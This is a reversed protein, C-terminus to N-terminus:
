PAFLVAAHGGTVSLMNYRTLWIYVMYKPTTPSVRRLPVISVRSDHTETVTDSWVNTIMQSVYSGGGGAVAGSGGGYYGDGGRQGVSSGGTQQNSLVFADTVPMTQGDPLGVGAAAGRGGGGGGVQPGNVQLECVAFGSVDVASEYTRWPAQADHYVQVTQGATVSIPTALTVTYWQLPDGPDPTIWTGPIAPGGDIQIFNAIGGTWVRTQVRWGYLMGNTTMTFVPGTHSSATATSAPVNTYLTPTPVIATHTRATNGGNWGIQVADGADGGDTGYGGGAAVAIWSYGVNTQLVLSASGHATTRVYVHQFGRMRRLTQYDVIGEVFAGRGGPSAGELRIRFGDVDHGFLSDLTVLQDAGVEIVDVGSVDAWVPPMCEDMNFQLYLERNQLLSWNAAGRIEDAPRELAEALGGTPWFGFDYRYIYRDVLPTRRSGLAPILSRFFSPGEHEFRREGEWWLTAAALPDSRRDSFGPRIYGNGYDWDPIQADPWWIGSADTYGLDRSFLFYANYTPAEARQIIWSIDRILGGPRLPIRLSSTGETPVAPIAVHQEFPIQLSAMRFASAERDELSIYELIWYAEQIRWTTPMAGVVRGSSIDVLPCGALAPLPGTSGTPAPFTASAPTSTFVCDQVPRFQVTIQVKDRAMAQIPLVQPGPGRNWWFPFVVELTQSTAGTNVSSQDTYTSPDRGIMANTSDFHEVPQTQEDLVELLRSDLTDIVQGNVTFDVSSCIAHGLANTWSWSPAVSQGGNAAQATQQPTVIDPLTVVLTARSILEGRQPLTVTARRGFDAIGDFEVRYWRSAWRTRRRLVKAFASVSPQGRVENLRERDELGQTVVHFMTAASAAM